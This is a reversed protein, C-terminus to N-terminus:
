VNLVFVGLTILGIVLLALGLLLAGCGLGIGVMALPREGEPARGAKVYSLTQYGTVIAVVAAALALLGAPMFFVGVIVLPIAALGTVLPIIANGKATPM